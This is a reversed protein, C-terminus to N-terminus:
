HSRAYVLWASNPKWNQNLPQLSVLEIWSVTDRSNSVGSLIQAYQTFQNRWFRQWIAPNIARFYAAVASPRIRSSTQGATRKWYDIAWNGLLEAGDCQKRKPSHTATRTWHHKIISAILDEPQQQPLAPTKDMQKLQIKNKLSGIYRFPNRQLKVDCAAM